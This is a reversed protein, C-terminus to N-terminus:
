YDYKFYEIDREHVRAISKISAENFYNKIAEIGTVTLKNSADIVDLDNIIKMVFKTNSQVKYTIKHKKGSTPDIMTDKGKAIAETLSSWSNFSKIM